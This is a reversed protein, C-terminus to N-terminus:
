RVRTLRAYELVLTKRGVSKFEVVVRANAGPTTKMVVGEGFQPHRVVSGQPYANTDGASSKSKSAGGPNISPRPPASKPMSRRPQVNALRQERAREIRELDAKHKPDQKFDKFSGSRFSRSPSPKSSFADDYEGAGEDYDYADSHDSFIIHERGIEELFRSPIMRESMGRITRRNANTIQLHKMARTIGVFALRREEELESQSENARSHPLSGEELGIMAVAPFELGKSAHLTMLTVTGTSSDVADADAVLAISELYARLMALLEPVEGVQGSQASEVDTFAAPDDAPDYEREFDRASTILESLNDLREEDSEAGSAKAQKTYHAELTSETIVREVLEHLSTSVSAGLFTGGGTWDNIMTVFKDISALARPNLGLEKARTLGQWLSINARVAAGQIVDLTTKGIGRTPTNVVRLLSVTDNPNAVVRLYALANKIEEREFFATGRAIKYPIGHQRMADEMVRSFSNVRYFVAMDRWAIGDEDHLKRFYDAVLEGEHRENNCRIVTIPEGGEKSTYLPKDRRHENRKILTDAAQLIPATSRFNEGLLIATAGPFHEEFDLINSIDAGRWGYIAQDPDGVVCINPQEPAQDEMGPLPPPPAALLSTIKFQVSNTDQYEDIMLYRWRSTLEARIDEHTELLKVTYLLLDDFDIAGAQRLVQEYRIYIKAIQKAYYDFANAEYKQADMLENKANSIASLVTRPPWNSSQLNMEKLVRKMASMQDSSDYITYDPKLGPLQAREAYRRLLRACLSHFTTITLGRMRPDPPAGEELAQEGAIQVTVRERMEGAAKNTFTLALISWPAVGKEVLHAIRRTIVRTKGSGAAALILLPGETHLVASKQAETLGALIPNEKPADDGLKSPLDDDALFDPLDDLPMTSM